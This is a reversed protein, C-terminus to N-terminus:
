INKVSNTLCVKIKNEFRRILNVLTKINLFPTIIVSFSAITILLKTDLTQISQGTYIQIKDRIQVIM